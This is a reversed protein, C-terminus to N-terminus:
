AAQGPTWGFSALEEDLDYFDDPETSKFLEWAVSTAPAVVVVRVGRARLRAAVPAFDGDATILVVTDYVGPADAARLGMEMDLDAKHRGGPLIKPPKTVVEIGAARLWGFFGETGPYAGQFHVVDPAGFQRSWAVLAQADVRRHRPRLPDQLHGRLNAGDVLILARKLSTVSHM